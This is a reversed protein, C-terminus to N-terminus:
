NSPLQVEIASMMSQHNYAADGFMSRYAENARYTAQEVDSGNSIVMVAEDMHGQYIEHGEKYQNDNRYGYILDQYFTEEISVNAAESVANNGHPTPGPDGKAVIAVPLRVGSALRVGGVFSQNLLINKGKGYSSMYSLSVARDLDSVLNKDRNVFTSGGNQADSSTKNKKLGVYEKTMKNPKSSVNTVISSVPNVVDGIQDDCSIIENRSGVHLRSSNADSMEPITKRTNSEDIRVKNEFKIPSYYDQAINRFTILTALVIIFCALCKLHFPHM